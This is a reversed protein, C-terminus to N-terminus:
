SNYREVANRLDNVYFHPCIGHRRFLYLYTVMPTKPRFSAVLGAIATAIIAGFCSLIGMSFGAYWGGFFNFTFISWGAAFVAVFCVLDENATGKIAQRRWATLPDFFSRLKKM